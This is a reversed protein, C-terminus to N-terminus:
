ERVRRTNPFDRAIRLAEERDENMDLLPLLANTLAGTVWAASPQNMFAYSPGGGSWM